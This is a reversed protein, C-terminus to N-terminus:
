WVVTNSRVNVTNLAPHNEAFKTITVAEVKCTSVDNLQGCLMKVTQNLAEVTKTLDDITAQLHTQKQRLEQVTRNNAEETKIQSDITVQLQKRKDRLEQLTRNNAEETKTQGDITAQLQKQKECLGQATQNLSEV